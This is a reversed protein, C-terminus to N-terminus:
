FLLSDYLSDIGCELELSVCNLSDNFAAVAYSAHRAMEPHRISAKLQPNPLGYSMNKTATTTYTM